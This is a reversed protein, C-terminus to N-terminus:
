RQHREQRSRETHLPSSRRRHSRKPEVVELLGWELANRVHPMFKVIAAAKPTGESAARSHIGHSVTKSKHIDHLLRLMSQNVKVPRGIKDEAFDVQLEPGAANTLSRQETVFATSPFRLTSRLVAEDEAALLDCRSLLQDIAQKTVRGSFPYVDRTWGVQQKRKRIVNFCPRIARLQMRDFHARWRVVETEFSKGAGHSDLASYVLAFVDLNMPPYVISLLDTDRSRLAKRMRRLISEGPFEPWQILLVARGGDALHDPLAPLLRMPLEDGRSGGFLYTTPPSGEPMPIFPPQSVILDFEENAVPAFLDGQRFEVNNIGNMAANIRGFALARPNIDAAVVTQARDALALALAGAGCGLDLIRHLRGKPRAAKLLSGTTGGCAMVAEAGHHLDDALLYKDQFILIQFPAAVLRDDSDALLGVEYMRDLRPSGFIKAADDVAIPSALCLLRAANAFPKHQSQLFWDVLPHAFQPLQGPAVQSLKKLNARTFGVEILRKRLGVWDADSWSALRALDPLPLSQATRQAPSSMFDTATHRLRPPVAASITLVDAAPQSIM